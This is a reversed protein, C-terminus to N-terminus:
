VQTVVYPKWVHLNRCPSYPVTFISYYQKTGVWYLMPITGISAVQETLKHSPMPLNM